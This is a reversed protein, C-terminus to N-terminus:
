PTSNSMWELITKKEKPTLGSNWHLLRYRLPPMSNNIISKEIAKFDKLPTGHGKFPFDQSMDLHKLGERIDKELFGKIWPINSYWPYTTFQSHCNFCKKKFIPRVNRIYAENITAMKQSTYQDKEEKNKEGEHPYVYSSFLTSFVILLVLNFFPRSMDSDLVLVLASPMGWIM